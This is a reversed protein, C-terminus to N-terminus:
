KINIIRLVSITLRKSSINAKSNESDKNLSAVDEDSHAELLINLYDKRVVKSYDCSM